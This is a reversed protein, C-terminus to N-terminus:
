TGVPKPTIVPHRLCVLAAAIEHCHIVKAMLVPQACIRGTGKSTEGRGERRGHGQAVLRAQIEHHGRDGGQISAGRDSDPRVAAAGHKGPHRTLTSSHRSSRESFPNDNSTHRRSHSKTVGLEELLAAGPQSAMAAGNDAHLTLRAMFCSDLLEM